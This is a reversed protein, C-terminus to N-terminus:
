FVESVELSNNQANLEDYDAKIHRCLETEVNDCWRSIYQVAASYQHETQDALARQVGQWREDIEHVQRTVATVVDNDCVTILFSCADHLGKINGEREGLDKFFEQL